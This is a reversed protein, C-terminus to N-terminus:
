SSQKLESSSVCYEPYKFITHPPQACYLNQIFTLQEHHVKCISVTKGPVAVM